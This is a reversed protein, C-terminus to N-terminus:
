SRRTVAVTGGGEGMGHVIQRWCQGVMIAERIRRVGETDGRASGKVEGMWCEGGGCLAGLM